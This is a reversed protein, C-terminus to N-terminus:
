SPKALHKSSIPLTKRQENLITLFLINQWSAPVILQVIPNSASLDLGIVHLLEALFRDVNSLPLSANTLLISSSVPFLINTYVPFNNVQEILYKVTFFLSFCQIAFTPSYM